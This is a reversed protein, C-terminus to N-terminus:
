HQNQTANATLRIANNEDATDTSVTVVCAYVYRTPTLDFNKYGITLNALDVYTASDGTTVAPASPSPQLANAAALLYADDADSGAFATNDKCTTNSPLRAWLRIVIQGTSGGVSKYALHYIIGDGGEIGALPLVFLGSQNGSSAACNAYGTGASTCGLATGAAHSSNAPTATATIPGSDRSYTDAYAVAPALAFLALALLLKRLM